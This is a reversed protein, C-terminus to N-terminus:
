ICKDMKHPFGCPCTKLKNSKKFGRQTGASDWNEGMKKVGSVKYLILLHGRMNGLKVTGNCIYCCGNNSGIYPFSLLFFDCDRILLFNKCCTIFPFFFFGLRHRFVLACIESMFCLRCQVTAATFISRM